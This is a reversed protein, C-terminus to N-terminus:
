DPNSRTMTSGFDAPAGTTGPRTAAATRRSSFRLRLLRLIVGAVWRPYRRRYLVAALRARPVLRGLMPDALVRDRYNSFSFDNSAFAEALATAAVQGYVLAFTIGEGLLPDAGAADGVLLIRETSFRATPDFRRLPFGELRCSSLDKGRKALSARLVEQLPVHRRGGAVRSDFVGRNMMPRGRVLRPFDWYYGQLGDDAPTFDFSTIHQRLEESGDAEEETLVELLRAKDIRRDPDVFSAVVGKSGDAGVVARAQYTASSTTVDVHDPAAEVAVVKEGERVGVGRERACSLLWHDFDPRHILHLLGEERFSLSRGHYTMRAEDAVFCDPLPSLGLRDLVEMGAATIAGGCPKPRPHVARELVLMRGALGPEDRALHLAVSMGAPGAGVILLDFIEPM